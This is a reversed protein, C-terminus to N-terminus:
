EINLCKLNSMGKSLIIKKNWSNKDKGVVIRGNFFIESNLIKM